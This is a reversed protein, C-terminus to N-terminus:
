LRFILTSSAGWTARGIQGIQLTFFPHPSLQLGYNLHQSDHEVTFGLRPSLQLRLSGFLGNIFKQSYAIGIHWSWPGTTNGLVGYITSHGYYERPDDKVLGALLNASAIDQMGIAIRPLPDHLPLQYKASFMRDNGYTVGPVTPDYWGVMETLRMSVELNPLVGATVAYIRNTMPARLYTDPGDLWSFSLAVSGEQLVDAIPTSIAGSYGPHAVHGSAPLSFSYHLAGALAMAQTSRKM